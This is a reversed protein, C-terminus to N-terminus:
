KILYTILIFFYFYLFVLFLKSSKISPFANEAIYLVTQGRSSLFKVNRGAILVFQRICKEQVEILTRGLGVDKAM